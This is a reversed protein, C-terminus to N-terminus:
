SHQDLNISVQYIVWFEAPLHTFTLLLIATKNVYSLHSTDLSIKNLM